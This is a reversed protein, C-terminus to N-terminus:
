LFSEIKEKGRLILDEFYAPEGREGKERDRLELTLPGDYGIKRLGDIVPKWPVTGEGPVLHEDEEGGNDSIHVDALCGDAAVVASPAEEAVHAHGVDICVKLREEGFERVLDVIARSTGSPMATNELALSIGDPLAELIRELSDKFLLKRKLPVENGPFTTHIVLTGEGQIVLPLACAITEEVSALRLEDNETSLSTWRGKKIDDIHFYLPFHVTPVRIGRREASSLFRRVFERDRYPFHPISSFVELSRIGCSEVISLFEERFTHYVFIHTSVSLFM